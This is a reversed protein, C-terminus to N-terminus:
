TDPPKVLADDVAQELSMAQGAAWAAAAAAQGVARRATALSRELEAQEHPRAQYGAIHRLGASASAVRLAREPQDQRAAIVALGDLSETIRFIFHAPHALALSAAYGARAAAFNGERVDLDAAYNHVATVEPWDMSNEFLSLSHRFQRRALEYDGRVVAILGLNGLLAAAWNRYGIAQAEALGAELLPQAAVDEGQCIMALGLFHLSRIAQERTGSRRRAALSEQFLHRAAAYNGRSQNLLGLRVAAEGLIADDGATRGYTLSDELLAQGNSADGVILALAGAWCRAKARIIGSTEAPVLELLMRLCAYGEGPYGLHSWLELATALRLGDEVAGQDLHWRLAARLNDIDLGLRNLSALHAAYPEAREALALFYAAHQRLVLESGVRAALRDRGFQRLTELLRYRGTGGEGSNSSIVLSQDVLRTLLDLVESAEVDDDACVAEAAEITWGGAFVSLRDFLCQERDTLLDYSWAVMARLTQQRPPAANSGRTLLQLRNDLRSAVDEVSLARVRAAALELALPIGDLRHCIQAVSLANL